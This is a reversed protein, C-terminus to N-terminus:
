VPESNGKRLTYIRIKNHWFQFYNNGVLGIWEYINRNLVIKHSQGLTIGDRHIKPLVTARNDYPLVLVWKALAIDFAKLSIAAEKHPPTGAATGDIVVVAVQIKRKDHRM